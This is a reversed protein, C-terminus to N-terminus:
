PQVPSQGGRGEVSEETVQLRGSEWAELLKNQKSWARCALAGEEARVVEPTPHYAMACPM